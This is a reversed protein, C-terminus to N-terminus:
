RASKNYPKKNQQELVCGTGSFMLEFEKSEERKREKEEKVHNIYYEQWVSDQIKRKEVEQQNNLIENICNEMIKVEDDFLLKRNKWRKIQNETIQETQEKQQFLKKNKEAIKMRALYSENMLTYVMEEKVFQEHTTQEAVKNNKSQCEEHQININQNIRAITKLLKAEVVDQKAKEENYRLTVDRWILEIQKERQRIAEKEKIQHLQAQKTDLLMVKSQWHRTAECNEMERQLAKLQLFKDKDHERQIRQIGFWQERKRAAEEIRNKM